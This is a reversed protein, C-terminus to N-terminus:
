NRVVKLCFKLTFSCRLAMNKVLVLASHQLALSYFVSYLINPTPATTNRNLLKKLFVPVVPLPSVPHLPWTSRCEPNNRYTMNPFPHLWTWTLASPAQRGFLWATTKQSLPPQQCMLASLPHSQTGLISLAMFSGPQPHKPLDYLGLGSINRPEWPYALKLWPGLSGTFKQEADQVVTERGAWLDQSALPVVSHLSTGEHVWLVWTSQPCARARHAASFPTTAWHIPPSPHQYGHTVLDPSCPRVRAESSQPWSLPLSMPLHTFRFSSNMSSYGPTLLRWQGQHEGDGPQWGKLWKM